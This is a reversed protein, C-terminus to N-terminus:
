EDILRLTERLHLAMALEAERSNGACIAEYINEHLEYTREHSSERAVTHIIQDYIIPYLTRLILMSVSNGSAQAIAEHFKYDTSAFTKPSLKLSKMKDLHIKINAIDEETANQAALAALKVEMAVRFEALDKFSVRKYEFALRLMQSTATITEDVVVVGKGQQKHVMGRSELTKIAERVSSRGISFEECLEEETPIFDGEQYQGDIIRNSLITTVQQAVSGNVITHKSRKTKNAM